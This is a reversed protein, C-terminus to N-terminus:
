HIRTGITVSEVAILIDHKAVCKLLNGPLKEAWLKVLTKKM